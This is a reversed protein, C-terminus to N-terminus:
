VFTEFVNRSLLVLGASPSVMLSFGAFGVLAMVFAVPMRTMFMLIMILIGFIGALVPSM